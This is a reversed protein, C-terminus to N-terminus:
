VTRKTFEAAKAIEDMTTNDFGKVIFLKEAAAIIESERVLRERERRSLSM